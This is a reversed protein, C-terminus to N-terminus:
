AAKSILSWYELSNTGAVISLSSLDSYSSKRQPPELLMYPVSSFSRRDFGDATTIAKEKEKAASGKRSTEIPPIDAIIIRLLLHHVRLVEIYVSIWYWRSMVIILIPIPIIIHHHNHNQRFLIIMLSSSKLLRWPSIIQLLQVM